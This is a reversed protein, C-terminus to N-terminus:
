MGEFFPITDGEKLTVIAKKWDARKGKFAGMRRNKGRYNSTNVSLVTVDFIEEVAKSIQIKNARTDVKFCYKNHEMMEVSKESILPKNLVDQATIAM